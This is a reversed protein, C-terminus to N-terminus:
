APGRALGVAPLDSCCASTEPSAAWPAWPIFSARRRAARARRTSAARASRAGARAAASRASCARAPRGLHAAARALVEELHGLRQALVGTALSGRRDDVRDAPGLVGDAHLVDAGRRDHLQQQAVDAPGAAADQRQAAVGVDLARGVDRRQVVDQRPVDRHGVRLRVRREVREDLEVPGVGAHPAIQARVDHRQQLGPPAVRRGLVVLEAEAVQRADVAVVRVVRHHQLHEVAPHLAHEADPLVRGDARRVALQHPERQGLEVPQHHAVELRDLRRREPLVRGLVLGALDARSSM